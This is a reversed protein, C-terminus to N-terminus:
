GKILKGYFMQKGSNEIKIFYIGPNFRSIDVQMKNMGSVASFKEASVVRGSIDYVVIRVDSGFKANYNVSVVDSSPVPYIVFEGSEDKFTQVATITEFCDGGQVV